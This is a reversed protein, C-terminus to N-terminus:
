AVLPPSNQIADAVASVNQDNCVPAVPSHSTSRLDPCCSKSELQLLSECDLQWFSPRLVPLAVRTQPSGFVPTYLPYDSALQQIRFHNLARRAILPFGIPLCHSTLPWRPAILSCSFGTRPEFVWIYLIRM